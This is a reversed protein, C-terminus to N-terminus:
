PQARIEVDASMGWLLGAPAEDLDITVKYLVDGGSKEGLPAISTVRGSFEEDFAKFRVTATQGVKVAAVSGEGLDTTELQLHDLDGLVIVVDGPQVHQGPVANVAVVTADFPARATAGALAAKSAELAAEAVRLQAEAVQRREPPENRPYIWYKAEAQASRLAAEAAAVSGELEPTSLVVLEQGAQVRDGEKVLVQKVAAPILFGIGARQLPAVVASATIAGPAAQNAPTPGATPNTPIAAQPAPSGCASLAIALAALISWLFRKM